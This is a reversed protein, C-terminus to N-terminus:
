WWVKGGAHIIAGLGLQWLVIHFDLAPFHAVPHAPRTHHQGAYECGDGEDGCPDGESMFLFAGEKRRCTRRGQRRWFAKTHHEGGWGGDGVCVDRVECERRWSGSEVGYM